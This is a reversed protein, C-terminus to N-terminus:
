GHTGASRGLLAGHGRELGDRGVGTEGIEVQSVVADARSTLTARDLLGYVVQTARRVVATAARRMDAAAACRMDTSTARLIDVAAARADWIRLLPADWIRQPAIARAPRHVGVSVGGLGGGGRGDGGGAGKGRGAKAGGERGGKGGDGERGRERRARACAARRQARQHRAVPAQRAEVDAPVVDAHGAAAGEGVTRGWGCSNCPFTQVLNV